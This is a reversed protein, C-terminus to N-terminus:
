REVKVYKHTMLQPDLRYRFCAGYMECEGFRDGHEAAMWPREEGKEVRAMENWKAKTAQLWLQLAEPHVSFPHMSIKVPQTYIMCIYYKEIPKQYYESCAWVYHNMQHSNAYKALNSQEYMKKFDSTTKYDLVAYGDADQIVLDPRSDGYEIGLPTEVDIIRYTPDLPDNMVYQVISRGVRDEMTQLFDDSTMNLVYGTTEIAQIESAMVAYAASMATKSIETRDTIAIGAHEQTKRYGNYIGLGAAISKGVIQALLPKGQDRLKWGERSLAHLM